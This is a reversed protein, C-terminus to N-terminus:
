NQPATKLATVVLDAIQKGDKWISDHVGKLDDHVSLNVKDAHCRKTMAELQEGKVAGDEPGWALYVQRTVPFADKFDGQFRAPSARRWLDRDTGFPGIVYEDYGPNKDAFEELDYIGSLGIIAAPKPVDPPTQGELSASGMFCQFALTAGASHGSIIYKDDALGLHEQMHHLANLVDTVHDPHKATRQSQPPISPDMAHGPPSSLRYDISIYGRVGAEKIGAREQM